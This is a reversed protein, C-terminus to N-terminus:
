FLPMLLGEADVTYAYLLTNDTSTVAYLENLLTLGSATSLYIEPLYRVGSVEGAFSYIKNVVGDIIEVVKSSLKEGSPMYLEPTVYSAM